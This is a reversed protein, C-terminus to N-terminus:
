VILRRRRKEPLQLSVVDKDFVIALGFLWCDRYHSFDNTVLAVGTIDRLKKSAASTTIGAGQWQLGQNLLEQARPADLLPILHRVAAINLFFENWAAGDGVLLRAMLTDFYMTIITLKTYQRPVVALRRCFFRYSLLPSFGLWIVNVRGATFRQSVM